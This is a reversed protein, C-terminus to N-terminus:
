RVAEVYLSNLPQTTDFRDADTLPPFLSQGRGSRYITDFGADRLAAVVKDVTWWNIHDGPQEPDFTVGDVLADLFAERSTTAFLERVEAPALPRKKHVYYRCRATAIERVLFDEVTVDGLSPADSLRGEFWPFRWRWYSRAGLEVTRYLLGADPCTIRLAGGPRLVRHCERLVNHVAADPVHEITHSTYALSISGDDFPLPALATLDYEVFAAKQDKAYWGTGYDVNKWYAHHFRGAGINIFPREALEAASWDGYLLDHRPPPLRQGLRSLRRRVGALGKKIPETSM